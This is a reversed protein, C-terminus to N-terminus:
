KRVEKYLMMLISEGSPDEKILKKFSDEDMTIAQDGDELGLEDVCAAHGDKYGQKYIANLYGVVVGPKMTKFMSALKFYDQSKSM